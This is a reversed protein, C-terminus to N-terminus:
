SFDFIEHEETFFICSNKLDVFNAEDKALAENATAGEPTQLAEMLDELSTWWCETIGDYTQTMGRVEQALAAVPTSVSHSQVYKKMRVAPAHKKVLPGHQELWYKYFEESSLDERKRVGYVMKIM